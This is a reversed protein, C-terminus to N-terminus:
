SMSVIQKFSKVTLDQYCVDPVSLVFCFKVGLGLVVIIVVVSTNGKAM